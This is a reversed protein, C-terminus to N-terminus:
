SSKKKEIYNNVRNSFLSWVKKDNSFDSKITKAEEYPILPIVHMLRFGNLHFDKEYQFEEFILDNVEFINTHENKWYIQTNGSLTNLVRKSYDQEDIIEYGYKSFDRGMASLKGNNIINLVNWIMSQDSWNDLLWQHSQRMSELSEHPLGAILSVTGRYQGLNKLFYDKIKLLTEKVYEPNLGKGISKGATHNFTEVGYYHGWIRSEAMLEIAEPHSRFLDIRAFACFDPEFDLRRVVNRIKTLKIMRDNVTEDSIQYTKLGWKEYNTILERYLKEEDASTDEKIGIFPFTCFDCQFKCGRGVEIVMADKDTVFDEKQYTIEYDDLNYSPHNHLADILKGKFHHTYFVPDGKNFEYDLIKLIVKEAYGYVYYDVGLDHEYPTMGGAILLIDPKFSKIFEIINRLIKLSQDVNESLPLMTWSIGIWKVDETIHRTLYDKLDQEGWLDIYDVVTCNWENSRLFSAMRYAGANRVGNGISSTSLILASNTQTNTQDTSSAYKKLPHSIM